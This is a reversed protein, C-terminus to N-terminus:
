ENWIEWAREAQFELMKQGNCISCGRIKGNALFQTVKPNYVLDFLLHQKTLGNYPINPSDEIKPKMGLPTCNIILHNESIVEEDLDDYSYQLKNPKRSVKTYDVGLSKLGHAVAKSAGGTGLILAKEHQKELLPFLAKMFGFCDTNHGIRKGDKFQVVNIAGIKKADREVEDMFGMAATKYPITINLGKLRSERKFIEELESISGINYNEYLADINEESFKEHFFDKSFSYDLNKGILGYKDM